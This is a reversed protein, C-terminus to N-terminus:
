RAAVLLILGISIAAGYTILKLKTHILDSWTDIMHDRITILTNWRMVLRQHLRGGLWGLYIGAAVGLTFTIM